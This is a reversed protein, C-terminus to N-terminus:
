PITISEAEALADRWPDGRDQVSQAEALLEAADSDLWRSPLYDAAVGEQGSLQSLPIGHRHLVTGALCDPAGDHVYRCAPPGDGGPRRPCVYDPQEAVVARLLRLAEPGTLQDPM